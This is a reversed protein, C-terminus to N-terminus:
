MFNVVLQSSKVIYYTLFITVIYKNYTQQLEVPISIDDLSERESM